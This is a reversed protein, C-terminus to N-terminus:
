FFKADLMILLAILVTIIAIFGIPALLGFLFSKGEIWSDAQKMRVNVNEDLIEADAVIPNQKHKKIKSIVVGLVSLSLFLWFAFVLFLTSTKTQESVLFIAWSLGAISFAIMTTLQMGLM